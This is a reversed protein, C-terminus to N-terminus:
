SIDFNPIFSANKTYLIQSLSLNLKIVILGTSVILVHGCSAPSCTTNQAFLIPITSIFETLLMILLQQQKENAAIGTWAM